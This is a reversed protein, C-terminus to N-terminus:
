RQCPPYRQALAHLEDGLGRVDLESAVAVLLDDHEREGVVRRDDVDHAPDRTPAKVPVPALPPRRDVVPDAHVDGTHEVAEGVEDRGVLDDGPDRRDVAAPDAEDAGRAIVAAAPPREGRPRALRGGLQEIARQGAGRVAHQERGQREGAGLCQVVLVSHADVRARPAADLRQQRTDLRRGRPQGRRAGEVALPDAEVHEPVVVGARREAFEGAGVLAAARQRDIGPDDLRQIGEHRLEADDDVAGAREHEVLQALLM